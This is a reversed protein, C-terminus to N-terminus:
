FYEATIFGFNIIGYSDHYEGYVGILHQGEPISQEKWGWPHRKSWKCIYASNEDLLSLGVVSTRADLAVGAM